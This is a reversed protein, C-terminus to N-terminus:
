DATKDRDVGTQKPPEDYGSRSSYFVLVMLGFGVALSFFVGLAMAVYGAHSVDAGATATWGWGAVVITWVLLGLLIAIIAYSAGSTNKAGALLNRWHMEQLIWRM